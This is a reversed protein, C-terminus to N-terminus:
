VVKDRRSWGVNLAFLDNMKSLNAKISVDRDINTWADEEM